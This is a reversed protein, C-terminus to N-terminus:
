NAHVSSLLLTLTNDYLSFLDTAQDNGGVTFPLTIIPVSAKESLWKVGKDKQFAALLIFDPKEQRSIKLIDALHRSTPPIGPKPELNGVAEIGLWNLLYSWSKHYVIAKLNKLASGRKEWRQIAAKWKAEFESYQKNYYNQNDADIQIFRDKLAQAITLLRHPDLHVHPNGGAHIDGDSRDLSTPIEIRDVQEAAMFHGAQNSQIAKNGSQRILLPLWGVELEAGTCVLLDARRTKAILSPRADIYHPDQFATTASFVKVNTGGIVEALAKWEPECAFVNLVAKSPLSFLLICITIAPKIAAMHNQM